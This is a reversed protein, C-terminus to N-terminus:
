RPWSAALWLVTATVLLAAAAVNSQRPKRSLGALLGVFGSAAGFLLSAAVLAVQQIQADARAGLAPLAIIGVLIQGLAGFGALFGGARARRAADDLRGQAEDRGAVLLLGCGWALVGAFVLWGATYIPETL